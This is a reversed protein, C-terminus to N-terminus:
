ETVFGAEIAAATYAAEVDALAQEASENGQMFDSLEAGLATHLLGQFPVMPYPQSGAAVAALVGENVEQPEFGDILWVAQGMTEENLLAPSVAHTLAQFTAAADEDSVNTAVTWGDWWLTTAPVGSDGVMLPGAVKTNEYVVPESGEDDMLNGMRSGWMNMLAVNGAEWEAQTGNSDHTLFDPSMFESLAKMMELTAIGQANNISVNATGPEFFEGGHGIYM